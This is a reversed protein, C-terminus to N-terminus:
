KPAANMMSQRGATAEEPTLTGDHNTDWQDFRKAQVGEVEPQTLKGDGNTDLATFITDIMPQPAATGMQKAMMASLEDKTIAGDHNTDMMKFQAKGQALFDARAIPGMVPQAIAPGAFGLAVLGAISLLQKM